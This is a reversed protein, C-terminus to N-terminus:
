YPKAVMGTLPLSHENSSSSSASEDDDWTAELLEKIFKEGHREVGKLLLFAYSPLVKGSDKNKFRSFAAPTVGCFFALQSDRLGHQDKIRNILRIANDTLSEKLGEQLSSDDASQYYEGCKNCILVQRAKTLKIMGYEGYSFFKSKGQQKTVKGGCDCSFSKM